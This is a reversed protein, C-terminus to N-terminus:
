EEKLTVESKWSNIYPTLLDSSNVNNVDIKGDLYNAFLKFKPTSIDKIILASSNVAAQVGIPVGGGLTSWHGSLFLSRIPTKHHAVKAQMNHKGPRAGMISGDKNGTYREYTIPTAVDIFKIHSSIDISLEKEVRGILKKAFAKKNERYKDGRVFNGDEDREAQWYNNYKIDASVYLTLLGCGDPALSSDRESPSFIAIASTLPDGSEHGDRPLDEGRVSIAEEGIGFKSAPCNLAISVTAGSSYLVASELRKSLSIVEPTQPLMKKYLTNVDCAAIVYKARATKKIGNQLYEVGTAVGNEVVIKEVPSSTEIKCGFTTSVHKLWNIYETSTGKIPLQFDEIHAWAIPFLCSLLDKETLFIKHLQKDKFFKNLGKTVGKDGDYLAYPIIPLITKFMKLNYMVRGFFNRSDQTRVFNRFGRSTEGLHFAVKFFKEIGKQEHPFDSILQDRLVKPSNTITYDSTESKLRHIQTMKEAKPYDSGIFDFVKPVMGESGCQNLWHIATEFQYGERSFGSLYGGISKEKELVLTKLGMRGLLAANTLGSVGSGIIIVDLDVMALGM